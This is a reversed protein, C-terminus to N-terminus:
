SAADVEINVAAGDRQTRACVRTVGLCGAGEGGAEREASSARGWRTHSAQDKKLKPEADSM